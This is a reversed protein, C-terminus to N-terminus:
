HGPLLQDSDALYYLIITSILFDMEHITLDLNNHYLQICNSAKANFNLYSDNFISTKFRGSTTSHRSLANTGTSASNDFLKCYKNEIM